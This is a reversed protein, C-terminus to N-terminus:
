GCAVSDRPAEPELLFDGLSLAVIAYPWHEFAYIGPLVTCVSTAEWSEGELMHANYYLPDDFGNQIILVMDDLAPAQRFTIRLRDKGLLELRPGTTSSVVDDETADEGEGGENFIAALAAAAPDDVIGDAAGSSEVSWSGTDDRALVVTEGPFIRLRGEEIWALPVSASIPIAEGGSQLEFSVMRCNAPQTECDLAPAPALLALSAIAAILM